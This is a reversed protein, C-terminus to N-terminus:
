SDKVKYDKETFPKDCIYCRQAKKYTAYVEDSLYM